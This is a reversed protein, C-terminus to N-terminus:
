SGTILRALSAAAAPTSTADTPAPAQITWRGFARTARASNPRGEIWYLHFGDAQAQAVGEPGLAEVALQLDSSLAVLDIAPGPPLKLKANSIACAGLGLALCAGAFARAFLHSM